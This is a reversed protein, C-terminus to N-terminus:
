GRGSIIHRRDREYRFRVAREREDESLLPTLSEADELSASWLHIERESVVPYPAMRISGRALATKRWAGRLSQRSRALSQLRGIEGAKESTERAPAHWTFRFWWQPNRRVLNFGRGARRDHPGPKYPSPKRSAPANLLTQQIHTEVDVGEEPTVNHRAIHEVNTKTGDSDSRM